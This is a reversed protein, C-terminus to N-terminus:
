AIHIPIIRSNDAYMYLYMYICMCMGVYVYNEYSFTSVKLFIPPPAYHLLLNGQVDQYVSCIKKYSHMFCIESNTEICIKTEICLKNWHMDMCLKNWRMDVCLKNWRMEWEFMDASTSFHAHPPLLLQFLHGLRYLYTYWEYINASKSFYAPPTSFTSSCILVIKSISGGWGNTGKKKNNESNTKGRGCVCRGERKRVIEKEAGWVEVGRGQRETEISNKNSNSRGM